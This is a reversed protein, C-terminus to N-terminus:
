YRDNDPHWDKVFILKGKHSSKVSFRAFRGDFQSADFGCEGIFFSQYDELETGIFEPMDVIVKTKAPISITRKIFFRGRHFTVDEHNDIAIQEKKFICPEKNLLAYLGSTDDDKGNGYITPLNMMASVSPEFTSAAILSIAGGLFFRRSINM